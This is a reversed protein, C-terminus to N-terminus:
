PCLLMIGSRCKPLHSLLVVELHSVWSVHCCDSRLCTLDNALGSFPFRLNVISWLIGATDNM